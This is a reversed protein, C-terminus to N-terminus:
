RTNRIPSRTTAFSAHILYRRVSVGDIEVTERPSSEHLKRRSTEHELCARRLRSLVFRLPEAVRPFGSAPSTVDHSEFLQIMGAGIICNRIALVTTAVGLTRHWRQFNIGPRRTKRIFGMYGQAFGLAIVLLGYKGHPGWPKEWGRATTIIYASFATLAIAVCQANRHARFWWSDFDHDYRALLSAWPSLFLWAVVMIAGHILRADSLRQNDVETKM